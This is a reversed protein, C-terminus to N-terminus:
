LDNINQCGQALSLGQGLKGSKALGSSVPMNHPKLEVTAPQLGNGHDIVPWPLLLFIPFFSFYIFFQNLFFSFFSTNNSFFILHFFIHFINKMVFKNKTFHIGSFGSFTKWSTTKWSVFSPKSVTCHLGRMHAELYWIM